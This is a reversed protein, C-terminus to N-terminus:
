ALGRQRSFSPEKQNRPHHFHVVLAALRGIGSVRVWQTLKAHSTSYKQDGGGAPNPSM